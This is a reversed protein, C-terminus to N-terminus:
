NMKRTTRHDMAGSRCCRGCAPDSDSPVGYGMWGSGWTVGCALLSAAGAAIVFQNKM